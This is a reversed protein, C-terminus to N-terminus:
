RSHIVQENVSPVASTGAPTGDTQWVGSRSYFYAKSGANVVQGNQVSDMLKVTGAATGDSAIVGGDFTCFVVRNGVAAISDLGPHAGPVQLTGAATGDSVWLQGDVAFFLKGGAAQFYAPQSPLTTM